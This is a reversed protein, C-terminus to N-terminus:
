PEGFVVFPAWVYPPEKAAALDAQTLALARAFSTRRARKYVDEFFESPLRAKQLDGNKWLAVAPLQWLSAVAGHVGTRLLAVPVNVIENGPLVRAGGLSCASLVIGRLAGPGLAKLDALRLQAGDHLVLAAAQADNVPFDGHCVIHAWDLVGLQQRIADPTVDENRLRIKSKKLGRLVATAEKSALTLNGREPPYFEVHAALVRPRRWRALSRGRKRRFHRAHPLTTITYRDCLPKGAPGFPLAAFPVNSMVDHPVVIFRNVSTAVPGLWEAMKIVDALEKLDAEATSYVYGGDKQGVPSCIAEITKQIKAILAARSVPIEHLRVSARTVVVVIMSQPAVYFQVLVTRRAFGRPWPRAVSKAATKPRQQDLVLQAQVQREVDAATAAAGRPSNEDVHPSRGGFASVDREAADSTRGEPPRLLQVWDAVAEDVAASDPPVRDGRAPGAGSSARGQRRELEWGTILEVERLFSATARSRRRRASRGRWGDAVFANIEPRRQLQGLLHDDYATHKDINFMVADEPSLHGIVQDLAERARAAQEDSEAAKGMNRLGMTLARGADFLDLPSGYDRAAHAASELLQCAEAYRGRGLMALACFYSTRARLRISDTKDAMARLAAVGDDAAIPDGESLATAVRNATVAWRQLFSGPAPASPALAATDTEIPRAASGARPAVIPEEPLPPPSWLTATGLLWREITSRLADIAGQVASLRVDFQTNRLRIELRALIEQADGTRNLIVFAYAVLLSVEALRYTPVGTDQSGLLGNTLRHAETLRGVQIAARACLM